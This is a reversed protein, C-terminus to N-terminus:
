FSRTLQKLPVRDPTGTMFKQYYEKLVANYDEGLYREEALPACIEFFLFNLIDGLQDKSISLNEPTPYGKLPVFLLDQKEGHDVQRHLPPQYYDFCIEYLRAPRRDSKRLGDVQAAFLKKKGAAARRLEEDLDPDTEDDVEFLILKCQNMRKRILKYCENVLRKTVNRTIGKMGGLFDIYLYHSEVSYEFFLFGIVDQDRLVVLLYEQLPLAHDKKDTEFEDLWAGVDDPSERLAFRIKDEFLECFADFHKDDSKRIRYIRIRNKYWKFLGGFVSAATVGTITVVVIVWSLVSDM